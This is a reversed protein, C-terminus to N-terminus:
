WKNWLRRYTMRLLHGLRLYIDISFLENVSFWHSSHFLFGFMKASGLTFVSVDELGFVCDDVTFDPINYAHNKLWFKKM